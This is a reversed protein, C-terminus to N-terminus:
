GCSAESEGFRGGPDDVRGALYDLSVRLYDALDVFNQLSPAKRGTLWHSVTSEGVGLARAVARNTTAATAERLREALPTTVPLM